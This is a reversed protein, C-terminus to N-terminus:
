SIRQVLWGTKLIHIETSHNINVFTILALLHSNRRFYWSHTLPNYIDITPMPQGFQDMGGAILIIGNSAHCTVGGSRSPLAVVTDIPPPLLSSPPSTPYYDRMM